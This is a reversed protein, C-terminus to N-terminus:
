ELECSDKIIQNIDTAGQLIYAHYSPSFKVKSGVSDRNGLDTGLM